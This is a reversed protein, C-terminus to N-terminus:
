RDQDERQRREREVDQDDEVHRDRDQKGDSSSTVVSNRRPSLTEVVRRMRSVALAPSTM